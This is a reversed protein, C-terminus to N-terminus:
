YLPPPRRRLRTSMVRFLKRGPWWLLGAFFLLSAAIVVAQRRPSLKAPQIAGPADFIVSVRLNASVATSKRTRNDLVVQYEGRQRAPYRFRAAGTEPILRLYQLPEGRRSWIGDGPGLLGVNIAAGQGAVDVSVEIVAERQQLSVNVAKVDRPALRVTEEVLVLDTTTAALILALWIM